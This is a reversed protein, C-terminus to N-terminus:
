PEGEEGADVECKVNLTFFYGKGDPLRQANEVRRLATGVAEVAKGCSEYEPRVIRVYVGPRSRRRKSM